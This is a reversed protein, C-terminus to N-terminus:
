HHGRPDPKADQTQDSNTPSLNPDIQKITIENTVGTATANRAACDAEMVIEVISHNCREEQLHQKIIRFFIKSYQLESSLLNSM